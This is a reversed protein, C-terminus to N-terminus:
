AGISMSPKVDKIVTPHVFYGREGSRTGGTLYCAGEQKGQDMYNTVRNLQEESVL